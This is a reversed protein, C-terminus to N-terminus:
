RSGDKPQGRNPEAPQSMRVAAGVQDAIQLHFQADEWGSHWETPRDPPFLRELEQRARDLVVRAENVRGSANLALARFLLALPFRDLPALLRLGSKLDGARIALAGKLLNETPLHEESGLRVRVATVNASLGRASEPLQGQLLCAMSTYFLDNWQEEPGRGKSWGPLRRVMERCTAASKENKGALTLAVAYRWWERSGAGDLTRALDAAVAPWDNRIVLLKARARFIDPEKAGLDIARTLDHLRSDSTASGLDARALWASPDAPAEAIWQNVHFDKAFGDDTDAAELRHWVAPEVQPTRGPETVARLKQWVERFTALQMPVVAGARDIERGSQGRAHLVALDSAWDSAALDFVRVVARSMSEASAVALRLGDASLGVHAVPGDARVPPALLAASATEWLFIEDRTWTVLRDANASFAAGYIWRVHNMQPTLPLGTRADVVQAQTHDGGTVLWKSQDPSLAVFFRLLSQNRVIHQEPQEPMLGRSRLTEGTWARITRACPDFAILSVTEDVMLVSAPPTHDRWHWFLVESRPAWEGVGNRQVHTRVALLAIANGDPSFLAQEVNHPSEFSALLRGGAVDWVRVKGPGEYANTVTLVCCDSRAFEIDDVSRDHRIEARQRGSTTDWLSLIGETSGGAVLDGSASFRLTSVIGPAPLKHLLEGTRSDRIEAGYARGLALLGGNPSFELVRLDNTRVPTFREPRTINWLRITGDAAATAFHRGDSSFAMLDINHEFHRLPPTLAHGSAWNWIRVTHRVKSRASLQLGDPSFRVLHSFPNIVSGGMVTAAGAALGPTQPQFEWREQVAEHAVSGKISGSSANFIVTELGDEKITFTVAIREGDPHWTLKTAQGDGATLVRPSPETAQLDWVFAHGSLIAAVYRGKPNLQLSYLHQDPLALEASSGDRLSRVHLRRQSVACIVSHDASVAAARPEAPLLWPNTMATGSAMDWLELTHDQLTLIANTQVDAVGGKPRPNRFRFVEAGTKLDWAVFEHGDGSIISRGDQSLQLTNTWKQSIRLSRVPKAQSARWFLLQSDGNGKVVGLSLLTEGNPAFLIERTSLTPFWVAGLWPLASNVATLRVRQPEEPLEAVPAQRLAEAFWLGAGWLDGDQLARTGSAVVLKLNTRLAQLENDVAINRERLAWVTAASLVTIVSATLARAWTRTELGRRSRRIQSIVDASPSTDQWANSTEEAWPWARLHELDGPLPEPRALFGNVSVPVIPRRHKRFGAIEQPVWRSGLIGPEAVVILMRSRDLASRIAHTLEVQEADNRDLFCSWGLTSKLLAALAEAYVRATGHRYSIFADFGLLRSRLRGSLSEM